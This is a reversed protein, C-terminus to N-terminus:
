GIAARLEAFRADDVRSFAAVVDPDFQGGAEDRHRPPGREV